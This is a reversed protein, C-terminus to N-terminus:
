CGPVEKLIWELDEKGSLAYTKVNKDIKGILGRRVSGCPLTRELFIFSHEIETFADSDLYRRMTQQIEAAAAAEDRKGLYFEPLMLRLTSPAGGVAQEVAAWYAADSTFQDCAIVSWCQM